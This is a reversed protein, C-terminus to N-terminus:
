SKPTCPAEQKSLEVIQRFEEDLLKKIASVLAVDLVLPSVGLRIVAERCAEREDKTLELRTM